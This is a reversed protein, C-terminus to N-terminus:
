QDFVGNHQYLEIYFNGFLEHAKMHSLNTDYLVGHGYHFSTM